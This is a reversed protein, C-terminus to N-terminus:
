RVEHLGTFCMVTLLNLFFGFVSNNIFALMLIPMFGVAILVFFSTLQAHVFPFPVYAIKRAQNYNAMGESAYQYMRAVIPPAVDGMSGSLHERSVFEELWMFVLSVKALPGRAARLFAVENDSVGGIVRFPRAANYKTRNVPNRSIGLL